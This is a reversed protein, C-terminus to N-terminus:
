LRMVVSELAATVYPVGRLKVVALGRVSVLVLPVYPDPRENAEDPPPPAPATVYETAVAPVAPQEMVDPTKFAVLAPVHVTVTL